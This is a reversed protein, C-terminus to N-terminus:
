GGAWRGSVGGGHRIGVGGLVCGVGGLRAAARELGCRRLALADTRWSDGQWEAGRRMQRAGPRGARRGRGRSVAGASSCTAARGAAAGRSLQERGGEAHRELAQEAAPPVARGLAVHHVLGRPRHGAVVLALALQERGGQDDRGQLAVVRRRVEAGPREAVAGSCLATCLGGRRERGTRRGERGERGESGRGAGIEGPASDVAMGPAGPRRGSKCLELELSVSPESEPSDSRPSSASGMGFSCSPM